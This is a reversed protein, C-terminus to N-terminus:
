KEEDERGEIKLGDQEVDLETGDPLVIYERDLTTLDMSDVDVSEIDSVENTQPDYLCPSEINTGFDWSSVFTAKIKTM